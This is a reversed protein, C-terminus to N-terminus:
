PLFPSPSYYMRHLIAALISFIYMQEAYPMGLVTSTFLYLHSHNIHTRNYNISLSKMGTLARKLKNFKDKERDPELSPDDKLYQFSEVRLQKNSHYLHLQQRESENTGFM